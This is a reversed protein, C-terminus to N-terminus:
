GRLGSANVAITSLAISEIEAEELKRRQLVTQGFSNSALGLTYKANSFPMDVQHCAFHLLQPIREGTPGPDAAAVRKAPSKQDGVKM